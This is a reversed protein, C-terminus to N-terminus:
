APKGFKKIAAMAPTLKAFDKEHRVLLKTIADAIQVADSIDNVLIGGRGLFRSYRRGEEAADDRFGFGKLREKAVIDGIRRILTSRCRQDTLPGVEAKLRLTGSGGDESRDLRFWLAVPYGAQWTECGPWCFDEEGLAQAWSSPIIGLRDRSQWAYDYQAGGIKATTGYDLEHGFLAEVALSFDTAQGHELVFDLVKRHRRYLQRALQVMEKSSDSM